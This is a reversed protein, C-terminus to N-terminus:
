HKEKTLLLVAKALAQMVTSNDATSSSSTGATRTQLQADTRDESDDSDGTAATGTGFNGQAAPLWHPLPAKGNWILQKFRFCTATAAMYSVYSFHPLLELASQLSHVSLEVGTSYSTLFYDEYWRNFKSWKFNTGAWNRFFAKCDLKFAIVLPPETKLAEPLTAVQELRFFYYRLAAWATLSLTENGREATEELYLNEASSTATPRFNKYKQWNERPLAVFYYDDSLCSADFSKATEFTATDQFPRLTLNFTKEFDCTTEL